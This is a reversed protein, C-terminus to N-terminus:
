VIYSGCVWIQTVASGANQRIYGDTSVDVHWPLYAGNNYVIAPVQRTAKPYARPTSLKFLNTGTPLIINSRVNFQLFVEKEGKFYCNELHFTDNTTYANSM